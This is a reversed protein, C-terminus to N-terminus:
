ACFGPRTGICVFPLGTQYAFSKAEFVEQDGRAAARTGIGIAQDTARDICDESLPVLLDDDFVVADATPLARRIAGIPVDGHVPMLVSVALLPVLLYGNDSLPRRGAVLALTDTTGWATNISARM